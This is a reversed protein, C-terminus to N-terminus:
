VHRRYKEALQSFYPHYDAQMYEAGGARGLSNTVVDIEQPGFRKRYFKAQTMLALQVDMPTVFQLPTPAPNPQQAVFGGTYIVQVQALFSGSQNRLVAYKLNDTDLYVQTGDAPNLSFTMAQWTTSSSYKQNVASISEVAAFELEVERGIRTNVDIVFVEQYNVARQWKRLTLTEWQSIVIALVDLLDPEDSMPADLFKRFKQIPVM